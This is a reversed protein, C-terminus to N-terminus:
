CPGSRKVCGSEFSRRNRGTGGYVGEKGEGDYKLGAPRGANNNVVLASEARLTASSRKLRPTRQRTRGHLNYELNLVVEGRRDSDPARPTCLSEGITTFLSEQQM